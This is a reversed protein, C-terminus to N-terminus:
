LLNHNMVPCFGGLLWEFLTVLIDSDTCCFHFLSCVAKKEQSVDDGSMAKQSLLLLYKFLILMLKIGLWRCM